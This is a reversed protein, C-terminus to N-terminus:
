GRANLTLYLSTESEFVDMLTDCYINTVLKQSQLKTGRIKYFTLDYLDMSNLQIKLYNFSVSGKFKFSVWQEKESQVFNDAAVMLRLLKQGGLQQLVTNASFM